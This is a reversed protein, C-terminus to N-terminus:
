DEVDDEGTNISDFLSKGGKEPLDTDDAEVNNSIKEQVPTVKAAIITLSANNKPFWGDDEGERMELESLKCKATLIVEQGITLSQLEPLKKIDLDRLEPYKPEMEVKEPSAEGCCPGEKKVMRGMDAMANNKMDM